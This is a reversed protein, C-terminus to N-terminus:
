CEFPKKSEESFNIAYCMKMEDKRRRWVKEKRRLRLYDNRKLLISILVIIKLVKNMATESGQEDWEKVKMLMVMMMLMMM